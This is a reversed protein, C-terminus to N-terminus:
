SVFNLVYHFSILSTLLLEEHTHNSFLNYQRTPLVKILYDQCAGSVLLYMFLRANSVVILLLDRRVVAPFTLDDVRLPSSLCGETPLTLNVNLYQLSALVPLAAASPLKTSSYGAVMSASIVLGKHTPQECAAHADFAPSRNGSRRCYPSGPREAARSHAFVQRLWRLSAYFPLLATLSRLPTFPAGAPLM